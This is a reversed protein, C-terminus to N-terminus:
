QPRNITVPQDYKGLTLTWVAPKAKGQTQPETLILKVLDNSSKTIWLETAVPDGEIAGSTIPEIAAREVTGKLHYTDQGDVKEDPLQQVDRLKGLVTSLGKDKDFFVTPSYDFGPQAPGWQGTVPNTQYRDNGLAVLSMDINATGLGIKIKTQMQDPTVIDGNASKLQVTRSTDIYAEGDIQADFHVSKVADLRKAASDLVTKTDVPSPKSSGGCGALAVALLLALAFWRWPASRSGAPVRDPVVLAVEMVRPHRILGGPSCTYWPAIEACDRPKAAVAGVVISM